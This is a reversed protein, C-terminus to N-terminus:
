ETQQQLVERMGGKRRPFRCSSPLTETGPTGDRRADEMGGGSFASTEQSFLNRSRPIHHDTRDPFCGLEKRSRALLASAISPAPLRFSISSVARLVRPM